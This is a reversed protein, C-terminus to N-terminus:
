HRSGAAIPEGPRQPGFGSGNIRVEPTRGYIDPHNLVSSEYIRVPVHDVGYISHAREETRQRCGTLALGLLLIIIGKKM